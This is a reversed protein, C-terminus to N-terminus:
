LVVRTRQREPERRQLDDDRRDRRIRIRVRVFDNGLEAARAQAGLRIQAVLLDVVLHALVAERLNRHQERDALALDGLAGHRQAAQACLVLSAQREGCGDLLKAGFGGSAAAYRGSALVMRSELKSLFPRAPKPMTTPSPITSKAARNAPLAFLKRSTSALMPKRSSSRSALLARSKPTSSTANAGTM